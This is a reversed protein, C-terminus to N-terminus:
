VHNVESKPESASEMADIAIELESQYKGIDYAWKEALNAGLTTLARSTSGNDPLQAHLTRFLTSLHTFGEWAAAFNVVVKYLLESAQALPSAEAGEQYAAASKEMLANFDDDAMGLGNPMNLTVWENFGLRAFDAIAVDRSLMSHGADRAVALIEGIPRKVLLVDPIKLAKAM